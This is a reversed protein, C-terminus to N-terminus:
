SIRLRTLAALRENWGEGRATLRAQRAALDPTYALTVLLHEEPRMRGLREPWEVAMVGGAAAYDDFGTEYLEDEGGIRYLDFHFLPLRGPYEHVIAFTPSTVATEEPVGLGRALGRVLTTKGCGLEGALLIVDGARCFRAIEEGLRVTAGADALHISATM